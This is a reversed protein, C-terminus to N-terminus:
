YGYPGFQFIQLDNNLDKFLVNVVHMNKKIDKYIARNRM